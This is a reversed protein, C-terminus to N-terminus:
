LYPVLGKYLKVEPVTFMFLYEEPIYTLIEVDCLKPRRDESKIHQRIRRCNTVSTPFIRTKVEDVRAIGMDELMRLGRNSHWRFREGVTPICVSISDTRETITFGINTPCSDLMVELWDDSWFDINLSPIISFSTIGDFPGSSFVFGPYCGKKPFGCYQYVAGLHQRFLNVEEPSFWYYNAIRQVEWCFAGIQAAIKKLRVECNHFDPLVTRDRQDGDLYPLQVPTLLFNHHLSDSMRYFGRKLFRIGEDSRPPRIDFKSPEINGISMMVPIYEDYPDDPTAGLADDGVCVCMEKHCVTCLLFGHLATSFGINGAVGLMGNNQQCYTITGDLDLCLRDIVRFLTFQGQINIEENYTSLLESPLIGYRGFHYDVLTLETEGIEKIAEIMWYLFFKLESLTTTFAKFDHTTIFHDWPMRLFLSPDRRRDLKTSVISEMLAVAIRKIHKSNHYGHGGQAYYFRPKVDNFKWGYRMEMPGLIKEGTRGYHVELDLTTIEQVHRDPYRHCYEIASLRSINRRRNVNPYIDKMRRLAYTFKRAITKATEAWPPPIPKTPDNAGYILPLYDLVQYESFVVQSSRFESYFTDLAIQDKDECDEPEPTYRIYSAIISRFVSNGM